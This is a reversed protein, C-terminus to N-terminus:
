AHADVEIALAATPALDPIVVLLVRLLRVSRGWCEAETRNRRVCLDADVRATVRMRTAVRSWRREGPSATQASLLNYTPLKTKALRLSGPRWM